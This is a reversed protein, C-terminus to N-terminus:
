INGELITDVISHEDEKNAEFPVVESMLTEYKKNMDEQTLDIITRKIINTAKEDQYLYAKLNFQLTWVINSRTSYEFSGDYIIEFDASTLVVPVDTKLQYFDLKDNLTINLEPTFFPIIQEVIKLSDEFRKTALRLTFPFNYPVRNYMYKKSDDSPLRNMQNLMRGTDLSISGDLEFGMRPLITELNTDKEFDGRERYYAWFKEKPSYHLPVTIENGYDNIFRIQDFISAFAVILNKITSHYFIPRSM